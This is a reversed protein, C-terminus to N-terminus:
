KEKVDMNREREKEGKMQNERGGDLNAMKELGRKLWSGGETVSKERSSLLLM